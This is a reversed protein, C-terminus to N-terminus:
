MFLINQRMFKGNLGDGTQKEKSDKVVIPSTKTESLSKVGIDRRRVVVERKSLNEQFKHVIHCITKADLETYNLSLVCVPRLRWYLHNLATIGIFRLFHSGNEILFYFVLLDNEHLNSSQTIYL